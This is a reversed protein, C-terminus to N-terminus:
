RPTFESAVIGATCNKRWVFFRSLPNPEALVLSRNWPQMLLHVCELLGFAKTISHCWLIVGYSVRRKNRVNDVTPERMDINGYVDPIGKWWEDAPHIAHQLTSDLRKEAEEVLELTKPTSLKRCAEVHQRFDSPRAAGIVLTHIRSDRLLWLDNYEIPTLPKTAEAMIKTPRYLMGGKDPFAPLLKM